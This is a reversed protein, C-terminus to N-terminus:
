RKQDEGQRPGPHRRSGRRLTRSDAIQFIDRCGATPYGSLSGVPTGCSRPAGLRSVTDGKDPFRFAVHRFRRRCGRPVTGVSRAGYAAGRPASLNPPPASLQEAALLGSDRPLFSFNEMLTGRRELGFRIAPLGPSKVIHQSVAIDQRVIGASSSRRCRRSRSSSCCRSGCASRRPCARAARGASLNRVAYRRHPRFGDDPCARTRCRTRPSESVTAPM